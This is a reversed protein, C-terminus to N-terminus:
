RFNLALWPVIRSGNELAIRAHAHMRMIVRVEGLTAAEKVSNYLGLFQGASACVCPCSFGASSTQFNNRSIFNSLHTRYIKKWCICHFKIQQNLQTKFEFFPKFDACFSIYILISFFEFILSEEGSVYGPNGLPPLCHGL